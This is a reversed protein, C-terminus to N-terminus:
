KQRREIESMAHDFPIGKEGSAKARDFARIAELEELDELLKDYEKIDIVVSVRQGDKNIVYQQEHESM